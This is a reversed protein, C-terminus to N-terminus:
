EGVMDLGPLCGDPEVMTDEFPTKCGAFKKPGFQNSDIMDVELPHDNIDLIVDEKRAKRLEEKKNKDVYDPKRSLLDMCTNTTGATKAITCNYDTMSFAWILIKRNQMRSELLYETTEKLIVTLYVAASEQMFSDSVGCFSVSKM